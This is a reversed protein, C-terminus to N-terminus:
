GAIDARRGPAGGFAPIAIPLPQVDGQNVNVVIDARARRRPALLAWAAVCPASSWALLAAADLCGHRDDDACAKTADFNVTIKQGRYVRRRLAAAQTSRTSPATARRRRRGSRGVGSEVRPSRAGVM